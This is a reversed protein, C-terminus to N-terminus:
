PSRGLDLVRYKLSPQMRHCRKVLGRDRYGYARNSSAVVPKSESNRGRGGHMVAQKHREDVVALTERKRAPKGGVIKWWQEHKENGDGKARWRQQNREEGIEM